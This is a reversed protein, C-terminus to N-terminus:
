IRGTINELKVNGGHDDPFNKVDFPSSIEEFSSYFRVRRKLKEPMHKMALKAVFKLTPHVNVVHFGKHRAACTKQYLNLSFKQDEFSIKV